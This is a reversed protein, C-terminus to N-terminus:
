TCTETAMGRCHTFLCVVEHVPHTFEIGIFRARLSVPIKGMKKKICGRRKNEDDKNEIKRQNVPKTMDHNACLIFDIRESVDQYDDRFRYMKEAFVCEKLTGRNVLNLLM